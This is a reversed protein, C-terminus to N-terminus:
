PTLKWKGEIFKAVSHGGTPVGDKNFLTVHVATTSAQGESYQGKRMYSYETDGDEGPIKIDWLYLGHEDERKRVDEYGNEGILLEFVARVEETTLISEPGEEFTNPSREHM